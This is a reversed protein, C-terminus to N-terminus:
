KRIRKLVGTDNEYNIFLWQMKLRLYSKLKTKQMRWVIWISTNSNWKSRIKYKNLKIKLQKIISLMKLLNNLGILIIKGYLVQM